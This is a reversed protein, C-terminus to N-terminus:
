VPSTFLDSYPATIKVLAAPTHGSLRRFERIFHSQDAYGSAHAVRAWDIRAPSHQLCALARQFRVIGAYEKPNMGALACFTRDFQKRCLCAAAALEAVPTRPEACLRRVADDVRRLALEPPCGRTKRTLHRTLREQLWADLMAVCRADERCTLIREALLNLHRNELDCGPIELNYLESMPVDLFAGAAHPRFVVVVMDLDGRTVLHAPFNVQGSVALRGQDAALEPIHLPTGRHFILQPCGIPFTLARAPRDCRLVWYYRVYPRLPEAPRYFGFADRDM